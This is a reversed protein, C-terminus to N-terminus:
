PARAAGRWVQRQVDAYTARSSGSIVALRHGDGAEVHRDVLWVAANYTGDM